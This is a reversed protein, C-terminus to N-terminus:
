RGALMRRQHLVSTLTFILFRCDNNTQGYNKSSDGGSFIVSGKASPGSQCRLDHNQEPRESKRWQPRISRSKSQRIGNICNKPILHQHLRMQIQLFTERYVMHTDFAQRGKEAARRYSLIDWCGKLYQILRSVPLTPIEVAFQSLM